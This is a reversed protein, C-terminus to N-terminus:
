GGRRGVVRKGEEDSEVGRWRGGRRGMARWAEGGGVVGRWRGGRRGTAGEGDSEVGGWRERGKGM